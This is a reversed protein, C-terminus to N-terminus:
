RTLDRSAAEFRATEPSKVKVVGAGSDIAASPKSDPVKEPPVPQLPGHVFDPSTLMRVLTSPGM